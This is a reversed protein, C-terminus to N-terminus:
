KTVNTIGYVIDGIGTSTTRNDIIGNDLKGKIADEIISTYSNDSIDMIEVLQRITLNPAINSIRKLKTLDM